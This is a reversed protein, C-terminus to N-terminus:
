LDAPDVVEIREHLEDLGLESLRGQLEGPTMGRREALDRLMEERSTVADELPPLEESMM